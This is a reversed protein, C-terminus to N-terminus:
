DRESKKSVVLVENLSAFDASFLVQVSQFLAQSRGFRRGVHGVVLGAPYVDGLGSTLVVEGENIQVDHRIFKATGAVGGDGYLVGVAGSRSFVIPVATQPDQLLRVRCANAGSVSVRGVVGSPSLVVMDPEVGQFRGKNLSVQAYWLNPDRGSVRAAISEHYGEKQLKLLALLRNNEAELSQLQYCKNQLAAVQQQLALNQANVTNFRNLYTLWSTMTGTSSAVAGQMPALELALGGADDRWPKQWLVLGASTVALLLFAAIIRFFAKLVTDAGRSM